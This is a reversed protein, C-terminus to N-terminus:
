PSQRLSYAQHEDHVECGTVNIYWIPEINQILDPGNFFTYWARVHATFIYSSPSRLPIVKFSTSYWDGILLDFEAEPKPFPVYRSSKATTLEFQGLAAALKISTPPPFISSAGSKTRRRSCM